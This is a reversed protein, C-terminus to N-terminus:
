VGTVGAPASCQGYSNDGWVMVKGGSQLAVTHSDGAAVAVYRTGPEAYPLVQKGWQVLTGMPPLAWGSTLVAQLALVLVLFLPGTRASDMKRLMNSTSKRM